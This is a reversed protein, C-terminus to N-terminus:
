RGPEPLKEDPRVFLWLFAGLLIIVAATELAATWGFRKALIPTLVPSVMGGVNGGWNMVGSVTGAHESSIDITAAWHSSLAFYIAGAGISLGWIAAHMNSLIAGLFLGAGAALMGSMSIIRRGLRLGFRRAAADCLLGGAPTMLAIALFPGTTYYSGQMVTLHRVEVLYTYFWTMYIYVMYGCTMASAFLLWVNLNAAIARWPTPPRRAKPRVARSAEGGEASHIARLEAQNVRRHQEPADRARWFWVLAVAVGLAAAVYFSERWGYRLMLWAIFPPTIAAGLGGGALPVSTAFAREKLAMWNAITRNFNPWAAAEGMGLCFRALVLSWVAPLLAAPLLDAISATLATFASWWVVAALLVIRPGFRDGLWGGPVQFLGYSLIFASFIKGMEVDTLRYAGIIQKAAISINVRDLYTVMSLLLMLGLIEWRVRSPEQERSGSPPPPPPPHAPSSM